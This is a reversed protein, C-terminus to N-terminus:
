TNSLKVTVSLSNFNKNIQESNISQKELISCKIELFRSAKFANDELLIRRLTDKSNNQSLYVSVYMCVCVCM